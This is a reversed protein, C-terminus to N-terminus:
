YCIVVIGSGGKKGPLNLELSQYQWGSPTGGGGGGTGDTGATQNKFTPNASHIGDVDCGHGGGNGSEGAKYCFYNIDDQTKSWWVYAGGGGGGSGYCVKTYPCTTSGKKASIGSPIFNRQGHAVLGSITPEHNMGNMGDYGGNNKSSVSSSNTYFAQLGAGGGSGGAGGVSHNWYATNGSFYTGGSYGGSAVLKSQNNIYVTTSGGNNSPRTGSQNSSQAGANGGPGINVTIKDGPSVSFYESNVYGGGGGGSGYFQWYAGEGSYTTCYAGCSGGGGGVAFIYVSNVGSPVTFSNNNSTLYATRSYTAGTDWAQQTVQGTCGVGCSSGCTQQCGNSCADQCLGYCSGFCVGECTGSGCTSICYGGCSDSYGDGACGFTCKNSCQETCM